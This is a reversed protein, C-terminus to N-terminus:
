GSTSLIDMCAVYWKRCVDADLEYYHIRSSKGSSVPRTLVSEANDLVRETTEPDLSILWWGEPEWYCLRSIGDGKWEMGADM